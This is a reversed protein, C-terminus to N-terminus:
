MSHSTPHGSPPGGNRALHALQTELLALRQLVETNGKQINDIGLENKLNVQYDNEALLSSKTEQRNQSMMIVPAQLAALIALVTNFILLPGPDWQKFINSGLWAAIFVSFWGIFAWSGGFSAVTDAIRDGVSLTEQAEKLVNRSVQNSMLANTKRMRNSMERLIKMAGEPNADIFRVLDDRGLWLLKTPKTATATASRPLGDFLSLEGFYQGPFMSAVVVADKGTGISIDVAGDEVIYMEGGQDGQEFVAQGADLTKEELGTALQELEAASLSEFLPVGALVNNNKDM